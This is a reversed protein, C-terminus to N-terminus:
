KNYHPKASGIKNERVNRKTKELAAFSAAVVVIGLLTLGNFTGNAATGFTAAFGALATLALAIKKM